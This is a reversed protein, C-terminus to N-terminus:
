AVGSWLASCNQLSCSWSASSQLPTSPGPALSERARLGFVIFPFPALLLGVRM